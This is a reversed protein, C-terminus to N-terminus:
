DLADARRWGWIFVGLQVREEGWEWKRELLMENASKGGARRPAKISEGERKRGGEM